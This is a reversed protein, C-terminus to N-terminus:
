DTMTLLTSLFATFMYSARFNRKPKSLLPTNDDEGEAAANFGAVLLGARMQGTPRSIRAEAPRPSLLRPLSLVDPVSELTKSSQPFVLLQHSPLYFGVM